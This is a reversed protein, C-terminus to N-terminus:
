RLDKLLDEIDDNQRQTEDIKYAEELSEIFAYDEIYYQRIGVGDASHFVNGILQGLRMYPYQLWLKELRRMILPIRKPNRM